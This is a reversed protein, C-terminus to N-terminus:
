LDIGAQGTQRYVFALTEAVAKYFQEPVEMGVEVVPYMARALLKNERIPIGHERAIERIRLAVLRAGKAVVVPANMTTHDYRLAISLHTPNTIVVDAKPVDAMMRKFAMELQTSRIRAKIQPDGETQKHEDKVEQKTMKLKQAWDWRQFWWDFAAIVMIAVAAWIVLHATSQSVIRFIGWATQDGLHFFHDLERRVVLWALLGVVSIKLFNKILEELSKRSFLNKLGNVVNLKDFNLKISESSFMFGVQAVNAALGAVLVLLMFPLVARGSASILLAFINQLSDEDVLLAYPHSYFRETFSLLTSLTFGGLLLLAILASIIVAASNIEMSKAVNGKKRAEERRKPTAPETKDQFSSNGEAM